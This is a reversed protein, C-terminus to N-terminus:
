TIFQMDIRLNGSRKEISTHAKPESGMVKEREPIRINKNLMAFWMVWCIKRIEMNRVCYLHGVLLSVHWLWHLLDFRFHLFQL